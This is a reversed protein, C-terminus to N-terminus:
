LRIKRLIPKNLQKTKEEATKSWDKFGSKSTKTGGKTVTTRIEPGAATTPYKKSTLYAAFKPPAFGTVQYGASTRTKLHILDDKIRVASNRINGYYKTQTIFNTAGVGGWHVITSYAPVKRHTAVPYEYLDIIYVKNHYGSSNQLITRDVLIM